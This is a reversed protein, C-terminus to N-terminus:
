ASRQAAKRSDEMMDDIIGGFVPDMVSVAEMLQDAEGDTFLHGTLRRIIM